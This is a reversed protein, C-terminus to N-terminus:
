YAQEFAALPSLSLTTIRRPYISSFFFSLDQLISLIYCFAKAIHILIVMACIANRLFLTWAPVGHREACASVLNRGVIEGLVLASDLESCNSLLYALHSLQHHLQPTLYPAAALHLLATELCPHM